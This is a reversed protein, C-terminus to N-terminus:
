HFSHAALCFPLMLSFDVGLSWFSCNLNWIKSHLCPPYSMGLKEGSPSESRGGVVAVDTCQLVATAGPLYGFICTSKFIVTRGEEKHQIQYCVCSQIGLCRNLHPVNLYKM